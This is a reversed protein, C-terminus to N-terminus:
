TTAQSSTIALTAVFTCHVPPTSSKTDAIDPAAPGASITLVLVRVRDSGCAAKQRLGPTV